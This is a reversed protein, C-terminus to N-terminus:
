DAWDCRCPKLETLTPIKKKEILKVYVKAFKNGRWKKHIFEKSIKSYRYGQIHSKYQYHLAWLGHFLQQILINKSATSDKYEKRLFATGPIKLIPWSSEFLHAEEFASLQSIYLKLANKILISIDGNFREKLDLNPHPNINMM